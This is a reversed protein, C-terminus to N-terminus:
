CSAVTYQFRFIAWSDPSRHGFGIVRANPDAPVDHANLRLVLGLVEVGARCASLGHIGAVETLHKMMLLWSVFRDAGVGLQGIQL